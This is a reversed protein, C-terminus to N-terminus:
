VEFELCWVESSIYAGFKLRPMPLPSAFDTLSLQRAEGEGRGEGEPLPPITRQHNSLSHSKPPRITDPLLPPPGGCELVSRSTPVSYCSRSNKHAGGRGPGRRWKFSHLLPHWPSAPNTLSLPHAEGEGRGEGEPHPPITRQHNAVSHSKPPRITDPLLPPPGGCELVSRSTLVNYCSRSNKHAGGRGPGRRWKSSHFLPHWPSALNTLWLPHAEGEGRGEGEATAPLSQRSLGPSPSHNATEGCYGCSEVTPRHLDLEHFPHWSPLL